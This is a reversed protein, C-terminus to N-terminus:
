KEMLGHFYSIIEETLSFLIQRPKTAKKISSLENNQYIYIKILKPYWDFDDECSTKAKSFLLFHADNNALQIIQRLIFSILSIEGWLLM